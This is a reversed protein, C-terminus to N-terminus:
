TGVLPLLVQINNACISNILKYWGKVFPTKLRSTIPYLFTRSSTSRCHHDRCRVPLGTRVLSTTRTWGQIQPSSLCMCLNTHLWATSVCSRVVQVKPQNGETELCPLLGLKHAYFALSYKLSPNELSFMTEIHKLIPKSNKNLVNPLKFNNIQRGNIQKGYPM